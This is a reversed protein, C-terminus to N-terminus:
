QVSIFEQIEDMYFPFVRFEDSLQSLDAREVEYGSVM